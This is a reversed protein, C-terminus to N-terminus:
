SDFHIRREVVDNALDRLDRETEIARVQLEIMALDVPVGLQVSIMGSAQYVVVSLSSSM